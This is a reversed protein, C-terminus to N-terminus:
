LNIHWWSSDGHSANIREDLFDVCFQAWNLVLNFPRLTFLDVWRWEESNMRNREERFHRQFNNSTSLGPVEHRCVPCTNHLQLWPVICDSHYYHKCPLEKVRVGVEFEDKCVPCHSDNKLHDSSLEVIPLSDITSEPAPPPGPRDNQTTLEQIFHHHHDDDDDLPFNRRPHNGQMPLINESPPIPRPPVEDRGIFQLLVWAQHTGRESGPNHQQQDLLRSRPSPEPRTDVLFPRPRSVDLEYRIQGLCHPCLIEVPNSTTTRITRQCNRCWYYHYTRTRQVGNVIVGHRRASM